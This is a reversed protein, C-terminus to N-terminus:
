PLQKQHEERNNLSLGHLISTGSDLETFPQVDAEAWRVYHLLQELRQDGTNLQCKVANAVSKSYIGHLMELGADTRPIVADLSRNERMRKMYAAAKVSISPLDCAVVWAAEHQMLTLGAHMGGLPGKDPIFDTIIRVTPDVIRLFPRPNNTVVIVESCLTNMERIHQQILLEDSCTHANKKEIRHPHNGGALIIGTLM